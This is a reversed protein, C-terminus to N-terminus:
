AEARKKYPFLDMLEGSYYFQFAIAGFTYPKDYIMIEAGGVQPHSKPKSNIYGLNFLTAYIEPRDGIPYGSREWQKEMQKLFLAAYLYSYYHNHYDTLRTIREARIAATDSAVFGLLNEDGAGTYFVCAPNRANREIQMATAEKIGTVGYSFKSEVSLVKLPGIYSKYIERKSNFLRIQEAVLCSVILRGEVGTIESVSDILKKDKAVAIKFDQWESINMWEFASLATMKGASHERAFKRKGAAKRYAANKMLQLDVADLMKLVTVEDTGSQLASLVYEANKPYFENLVLIRDLAEYRNRAVTASDVRYGQNYKDSMSQFYRTNVDVKGGDKTWGYQIAFYSVTLFFGIAAFLFTITYFPIRFWRSGFFRRL